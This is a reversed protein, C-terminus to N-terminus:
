LDPTQPSETRNFAAMLRHGSRVERRRWWHRSDGPHTRARACPRHRDLAKSPRKWFRRVNDRGFYEFFEARMDACSATLCVRSKTVAWVFERQIAPLVYERRHIRDLAKAITIPAEFAM